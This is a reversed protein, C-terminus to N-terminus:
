SRDRASFGLCQFKKQSHEASLRSILGSRLHFDTASLFFDEAFDDDLDGAFAALFGALLFFYISAQGTPHCIRAAEIGPKGDKDM